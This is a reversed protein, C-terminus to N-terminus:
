KLWDLWDELNMEFVEEKRLAKRMKQDFMITEEKFWWPM